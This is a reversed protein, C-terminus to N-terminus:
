SACACVAQGPKSPAGRWTCAMMASESHRFRPSYTPSKWPCIPSRAPLGKTQFLLISGSTAYSKPSTPKGSGYFGSIWAARQEPSNFSDRYSQLIRQMGKLYEGDCVFSELEFRLTDLDETNNSSVGENVLKWTLPDKLFIEKTKM